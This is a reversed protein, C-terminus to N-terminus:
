GGTVISSERNVITPSIFVLLETRDDVARRSKFLWGLIPIDGFFPVQAVSEATRRTYIGGIVTTDGDKVLVETEAERKTISPQGNAGVLQDNPQNNTARIKLLVSGDSTVHPTVKLELKAEVFVTNVGAASVQSFPISVGQGIVAEKNDLTTVKPASVTKIVGQTELATLRMNLLAAGGASGFTLGLGGGQNPAIGAPFSVAWNPQTPVGFGGGFNGPVAGVAAADSPFALGTSNGLASTASLSGGWQIGVDRSFNSSAEVIRASIMVQPTQTDLTRVLSEARTLVEPIDRVILTNTRQDISVSGRKSLLDKVKNQVENALAYNVPIIRVKLPESNERADNIRAQAAREQELQQLPAIRIINGTVEKGLGKTKLVLDLAQDWPVNRLRITIKGKVDDSVVINRKSVEAIVRLLNHIDIDKFEFSVRRGTYGQQGRPATATAPAARTVRGTEDVIEAVGGASRFNWSLRTGSVSVKDEAADTLSVVVRVGDAADVFSSVTRVPGEFAATDLSRVLHSPLTAGRLTLVATRPDPRTVEYGALRSLDIRVEQAEGEGAFSVDRVQAKSPAAPAKAPAAPATNANAMAGTAAQAQTPSAPTAEASARASARAPATTPEATAGVTAHSEQGSATNEDFHVSLGRDSRAVRYTPLSSGEATDIVVRVKGEHLGYRVGRVLGQGSPGTRPAKEVGPLDVVLRPPNALELLEYSGIAGDALLDVSVTEGSRSMKADLIRSAAQEKAAQGAGSPATAAAQATAGSTFLLLATGVAAGVKNVVQSM